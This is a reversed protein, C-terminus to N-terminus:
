MASYGIRLLNSVLLDSTLFIGKQVLALLTVFFLM